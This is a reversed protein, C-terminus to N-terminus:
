YPVFPQTISNTLMDKMEEKRNEMMLNYADLLNEKTEELTEGQTNIGDIEAIYGIYGGETAEQYVATLSFNTNSMKEM